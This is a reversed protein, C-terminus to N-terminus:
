WQFIKNVLNLTVLRQQVLATLQAGVAGNILQTTRTFADADAQANLGNISWFWGATLCGNEFQMVSDPNNILVNADQFLFKSANAYNNRFTLHFAGRGRYRWGDGSAVNGNGNRSAYVLNALAEANNVYDPAYALGQLTSAIGPQQRVCANANCTFRSPWVAVLREPTTYTLDEVWKTFYATEYAAQAVFYRVRRPEQSVSFRDLTANLADVLQPLNAPAVKPALRGVQAATVLFPM